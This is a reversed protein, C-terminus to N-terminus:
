GPGLGGVTRGHELHGVVVDREVKRGCRDTPRVACWCESGLGCNRQFRLASTGGKNVQTIRNDLTHGDVADIGRLGSAIVALGANVHVQGFTVVGDNDIRVTTVGIVALANVAELIGGIAFGVQVRLKFSGIGFAHEGAKVLRIQLRRVGDM